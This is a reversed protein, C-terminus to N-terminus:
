YFPEARVQKEAPLEIVCVLGTAAFTRRVHAGPIGREILVTGFGGRVPPDVPPGGSESWTLVIRDCATDHRVEWNVSVRGDAVSWAGYKIANTGLEHLALALPISLDAVLVLPPGSMEFRSRDPVLPSLQSSLFEALATGEWSTLMLLDNAAALAQLRGQFATAFDDKGASSRGTQNAISQVVALTNKVRHALERNLLSILRERRKRERIDEMTVMMSSIKGNTRIPAVTLSVDILTGDKVRRQTELTVTEGAATRRLKDATEAARQEPVLLAISQGVIENGTYGFLREAGPNWSEIKGALCTSFMADPSAIVIAALRAAQEHAARRETVDEVVSSRYLPEGNAGRMISSTVRVWIPQGSKTILRKEIEYHTKDRRLIQEIHEAEAALDEPHTLTKFSKQLCEERTYGLMACLRENVSIFTGDLATQDFGVASQDFISRFQIESAALAQTRESLDSSAKALAAALQDAESLRSPAPAVVPEGRGLRAAAQTADKIPGTIQRGLFYALPFTTALLAAAALSFASWLKKLPADVVDAAVYAGTLWHSTSSWRYGRVIAQPDHSPMRAVGEAGGSASMVDAKLQAGLYRAFETSRAIIRGDRDAVVITWAPDHPIKEIISQIHEPDISMALVYRIEGSQIVPLSVSLVWRKTVSGIMLVSVVPSRTAVVDHYSRQLTEPPLTDGWPVRTNLLQKGMKDRLLINLKRYAMTDSAQRYFAELAGQHLAPSSALALLTEISGNIELDLIGSATRALQLAEQDAKGADLRGVSHIIAGTLLAGPMLVCAVLMVLYHAIPRAAPRRPPVTLTTM